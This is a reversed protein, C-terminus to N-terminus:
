AAIVNKKKCRGSFTTSVYEKRAGSGHEDVILLVEYYNDAVQRARERYNNIVTMTVSQPRLGSQERDALEKMYRITQDDENDVSFSFEFGSHIIDYDDETEGLYGEELFETRPRVQFDKIKRWTGTMPQGDIAIRVIQEQGRQRLSM